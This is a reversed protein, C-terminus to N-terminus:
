KVDLKQPENPNKSVRSNVESQSYLDYTPAATVTNAKKGEVGVSM